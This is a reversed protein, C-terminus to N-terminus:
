HAVGSPEVGEGWGRIAGVAEDLWGSQWHHRLRPRALFRHEVGAAVLLESMRAMEDHFVAGSVLVLRHGAPVAVKFEAITRAPLDAQWAGEDAYFPATGWPPLKERVMPADFIVTGVLLEPMARALNWAGLGSKSFGVLVLEPKGLARIQEIAQGRVRANYWVMHPFVVRGVTVARGGIEWAEPMSGYTADGPETAPLLVLDMCDSTVAAGKWQNALAM